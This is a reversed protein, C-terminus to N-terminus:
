NEHEFLYQTIRDGGLTNFMEQIFKHGDNFDYDGLPTFLYQYEDNDGGIRTIRLEIEKM